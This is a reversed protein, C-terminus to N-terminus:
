GATYTAGGATITLTGPRDPSRLVSVKQPQTHSKMEQQFFQQIPAKTYRYAAMGGGIYGGVLGVFALAVGLIGGGAVACNATDGRRSSLAGLTGGITAGATGGGLLGALAGISMGWKAGYGAAIGSVVATGVAWVGTLPCAIFGAIGGILFALKSPTLIGGGSSHSTSSSTSEM